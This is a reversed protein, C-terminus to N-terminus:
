CLREQNPDKIPLGHADICFNRRGTKIHITSGSQSVAIAGGGAEALSALYRLQAPLLTVQCLGDGNPM